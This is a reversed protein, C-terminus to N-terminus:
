ALGLSKMRWYLTARSIGLAHAAATVNSLLFPIDQDLAKVAMTM